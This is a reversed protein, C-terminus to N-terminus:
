NERNMKKMSLQLLKRGVLIAWIELPIISGLAFVMGIMGVTPPVIALVGLILAVYAIAKGLINSRVMVIAIIFLAIGQLIYSVTFATGEYNALMVEGAALYVSKEAANQALAYSNSLTLMELASGSAFYTATGVLGLILAILMLSPSAKKLIMYLALLILVMLVQDVILLLDMDLLGILPNNQFLTFWGLVTQPLPWLIYIIAQIPIFVAMTLAAIGGAKYLLNWGSTARNVQSSKIKQM